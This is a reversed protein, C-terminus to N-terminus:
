TAIEKTNLLRQSRKWAKDRSFFLKFMSLICMMWKGRLSTNSNQLFTMQTVAYQAKLYYKIKHGQNVMGEWNDMLEWRWASAIKATHFSSHRIFNFYTEFVCYSTHKARKTGRRKIIRVLAMCGSCDFDLGSFWPSFPLLLFSSCVKRVHVRWSYALNFTFM